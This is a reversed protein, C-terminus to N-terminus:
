NTAEPTLEDDKEEHGDTVEAVDEGETIADEDTYEFEEDAETAVKAIAQKVVTIAVGPALEVVVQKDGTAQITGFIGSTLMVRTGPQMTNMLNRQDDARKKNPRIMFIYIIGGFAIIWILITPDFGM